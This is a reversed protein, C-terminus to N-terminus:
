NGLAYLSPWTVNAYAISQMVPFFSLASVVTLLICHAHMIVKRSPSMIKVINVSAFREEIGAPFVIKVSCPQEGYM